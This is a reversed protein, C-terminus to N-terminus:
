PAREGCRCFCCCRLATVFTYLSTEQLATDHVVYYPYVATIVAALVAASRGLIERAILATCLVTGAGILSQWFVVSLFAQHGLTVASLFAPYLPVRFATPPGGDFALGNGAALNRALEFFFGYGNAWFDAEGSYFRAALRLAFALAAIGLLKRGIPPM